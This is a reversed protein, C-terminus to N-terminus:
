NRTYSVTNEDCVSFPTMASTTTSGPGMTYWSETVRNDRVENLNSNADLHVVPMLSVSDGAASDFSNDAILSNLVSELEIGFGLTDRIQNGVVTLDSQSYGFAATAFIGYNFREWQEYFDNNVSSLVYSAGSMATCNIFHTADTSEYRILVEDIGTAGSQVVIYGGSSTYGSTTNVTLNETGTLSDTNLGNDHSAVYADSATISYDGWGQVFNNSVINGTIDGSISTLIIGEETFEDMSVYNNAVLLRSGFLQILTDTADNVYNGLVQTMSDSPTSGPTTVRIGETGISAHVGDVINNTVQCQLANNIWIGCIPGISDSDDSTFNYIVNNAVAVDVPSTDYGVQIASSHTTM